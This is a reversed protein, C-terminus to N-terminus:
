LKPLQYEIIVCKPTTYQAIAYESLDRGHGSQKVGGALVCVCGVMFIYFLHKELFM